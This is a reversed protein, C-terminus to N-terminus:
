RVTVRSTSTKGNSSRVTIVARGKSRAYVVGNSVTAVSPNNSSWSITKDTANPPTYSVTLSRSQGVSMEFVNPTLKIGSLSITTSKVVVVRNVTARNGYNDTVSYTIYYTGASSTNVNGSVSVRATINSGLSDTASYGPDEYREGVNLTVTRSGYLTITPPTTPRRTTRRTTTNNNRKTTTVQQGSNKTTTTTAVPVVRVTRKVESTNGANDSVSYTIAYTGAKTTDVEGSKKVKSTIDGDVNDMAKVGPDEFEEGVNIVLEAEGNLSITPNDKDESNEPPQDDGDTADNSVYGTTTYMNGCKIYASYNENEQKTAIVYGECVKAAPVKDSDISGGNELLLDKLDIRTEEETLIIQKQSIYIPAEETMRTELRKFDSTTYEQEDDSKVVNVIIIIVTILIVLVLVALIVMGRTIQFKKKEKTEYEVDTSFNTNNM